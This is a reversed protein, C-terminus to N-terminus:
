KSKFKGLFGSLMKSGGDSPKDSIEESSFRMNKILFSKFQAAVEKSGAVEFLTKGSSEAASFIKPQFNIVMDPHIKLATEIDQDSVEFGQSQGKQNLVLHLGKEDGGRLAKIEQFLSRASRLSPLTPTSVVVVDHAREMTVAVLSKPAQSLDVVVLPFTVMLKNLILEFQDASVPVDLVSEAGTALISLNDGVKVIM